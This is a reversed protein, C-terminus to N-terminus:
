NYNRAGYVELSLSKIEVVIEDEGFQYRAIPKQMYILEKWNKKAQNNENMVFSPLSYLELSHILDSGMNVGPKYGLKSIHEPPQTSTAEFNYSSVLLYKKHRIM